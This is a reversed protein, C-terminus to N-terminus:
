DEASNLYEDMIGSNISLSHHYEAGSEDRVVGADELLSLHQASYFIVFISQKSASLFCKMKLLNDKQCAAM